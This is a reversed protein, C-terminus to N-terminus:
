LLKSYIEGVCEWCLMEDNIYYVRDGEFLPQECEACLTIHENTELTGYKEMRTIDPHEINGFKVM